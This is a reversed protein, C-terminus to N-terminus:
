FGEVEESGVYEVVQIEEIQVRKSKQLCTQEAQFEQM